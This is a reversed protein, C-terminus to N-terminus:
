LYKKILERKEKDNLSDWHKHPLEALDLLQFEPPNKPGYSIKDSGCKPCIYDTMMSYHTGDPAPDSVKGLMEQLKEAKDISKVLSNEYEKKVLKRIENFFSDKFMVIVPSYSKRSTFVFRDELVTGTLKSWEYKCDKCKMFFLEYNEM